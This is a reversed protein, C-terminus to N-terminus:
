STRRSKAIKFMQMNLQSVLSVDFFGPTTILRENLGNEKLLEKTIPQAMIGDIEKLFISMKKRILEFHAPSMSMIMSDMNRDTAPLELSKQSLKLAQNYYSVMESGLGQDPTAIKPHSQIWKGEKTIKIMELKTLVDLAEKAQSVLINPTIKSAIWNPEPKFDPWRVMERVVPYFWKLAYTMQNKKIVREKIYEKYEKLEEFYTIREKENEAQNFLVLTEFYKLPRGKLPIAKAIKRISEITLNRKGAIVLPFFSSAKVGVQKNIYRYSFKKPLEKKKMEFFDSLYDRYNDYSFVNIKHKTYKKQINQTGM